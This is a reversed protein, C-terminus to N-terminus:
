KPTFSGLMYLGPKGYYFNLATVSDKSIDFQSAKIFSPAHIRGINDIYISDDYIFDSAYITGGRGIYVNTHKEWEPYLIITQHSKTLDLNFDAAMEMGTRSEGAATVSIGTADPKTNWYNTAIYGPRRMPLGDLYSDGDNDDYSNYNENWYYYKSHVLVNQSTDLFIDTETARNYVYAAHNSYYKVILANAEWVAYLTADANTTYSGGATYTASTATSSTSWGLFTYKTRTPITSSLTLTIDHKKTQSGPAGSGGNANYSITYTSITKAPVTYSTYHSASIPGGTMFDMIKTIKAAVNRTTASSSKTVDFSTSYIKVYNDVNGTSDSSTNISIDTKVETSASTANDNFYLANNSDSVSWKTYLWIEIDITSVTDSKNTVTTKIGLQIGNNSSSDSLYSMSGWSVGSPKAM